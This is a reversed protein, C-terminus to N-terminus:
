QVDRGHCNTSKGVLHGLPKPHSRLNKTRLRLKWSEGVNSGPQSEVLDIEAPATDRLVEIPVAPNIDGRAGPVRGARDPQVLVGAISTEDFPSGFRSERANQTAQVQNRGVVVVIAVDIQQHEPTTPQLLRPSIMGVRQQLVITRTNETVDSELRSQGTVPQIKGRLRGRPGVVVAITVQIQINAVLVKVSLQEAVILAPELALACAIVVRQRMGGSLEHPYAQCRRDADVIGVRELLATVRAQVERRRM